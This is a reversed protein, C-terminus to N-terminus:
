RSKKGEFLTILRYRASCGKLLEYNSSIVRQWQVRLNMETKVFVQKRIRGQLLETLYSLKYEKETLDM